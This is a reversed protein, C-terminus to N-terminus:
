RALRLVEGVLKEIGAAVESPRADYMYAPCTVIKKAEDTVAREVPCTQHHAGLAELAQATGADEGITITPGEDGLALAVLAPAICIAGIPKGAAHVARLMGAVDERISAKPGELAFSSLNLAAGFGGPMVIGDLSAPDVESLPAIKGRAIRAAEVLVNRTEGTPKGTRHDVVQRQDADPAMCVIEAGARDLAVLTSVAETIEAGDLFGSGSLIVGIRAM